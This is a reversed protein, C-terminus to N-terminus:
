DAGEWVERFGPSAFLVPVPEHEVPTARVAVTFSRGKDLALAEAFTALGRKLKLKGIRSNCTSCCGHVRRPQDGRPHITGGTTGCVVCPTAM